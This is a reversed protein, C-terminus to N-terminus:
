ENNVEKYLQELDLERIWKDIYEMDLGGTTEILNKVDKLQVESRSEQAWILKSIILDEPSAIWVPSKEIMVKKKRSFEAQQYAASEKVIFDVKVMYQNHILNFMGQQLVEKEIMETNVYFDGKFLAVFRDVDNQQLEIVIDIDRTMRPVSYYNSAISGSLMYPIDAKNLRSTVMKLVELEENM